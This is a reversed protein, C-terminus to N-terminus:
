RITIRVPNSARGTATDIMRFRQEGSRGTVIYTTYTGGSVNTTVPFDIWGGEFRQVQLTAGEGSPYVGTLNIREGGSVEAPYGQLTITKPPPSPSPEESTPTESPAPSPSEVDRPAPYAEPSTTPVGTPMFLSPKEAPGGSTGELGTLRAAGVAIVSVIGGVLLSAAVIAGLGVVLARAWPMGNEDEDGSAM